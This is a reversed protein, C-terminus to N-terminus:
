LSCTSATYTLIVLGANGSYHWTGTDVAGAVAPLSTASSWNNAGLGGYATAAVYGNGAAQSENAGNGGNSGGNVGSTTALGPAGGGGGYGGGGGGGASGAGGSGGNSGNGGNGGAGSYTSCPAGSGGNGGTGSGGSTGAPCSSWGYAGAGGKNSGGGAISSSGPVGGGGGGGGFYGAGGGGGGIDGGGGGGGVIVTLNNGSGLTFSGSVPTANQGAAGGPAYAVLSGANSIASSGGGSGGGSVNSGGGGGIMSYTITVAAGLPNTESLYSTVVKTCSQTGGSGGGTVTTCIANGNADVGSMVQPSTCSTAIENSVCVFDGSSDTTLVQGASCTATSALNRCHPVGNQIGVLVQNSACSSVTVGPSPNVCTAKGSTVSSLVQGNTCTSAVTVGPSPDVCVAKGGAIGSLVQGNTCTPLVTIGPSPDVCAIADGPSTQTGNKSVWSLVQGTPCPQTTPSGGPSSLPPFLQGAQAAGSLLTVAFFGVIPLGIRNM